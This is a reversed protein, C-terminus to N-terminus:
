HLEKVSTEGKFVVGEEVLLSPSTIKGEFKAPKRIEVRSTADINGQFRGSIIVVGASVQAKVIAEDSIILTDKSNIIGSFQGAIRLIGSFNITGEFRCGREIIGSITDNNIKM